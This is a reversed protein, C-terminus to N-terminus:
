TRALLFYSGIPKDLRTAEGIVVERSVRRLYDYMNNYIFRSLGAKNPKIPPWEAPATSPERTYDILLEGPRTTAAAVSFYGPGTLWSISQHNYGIITGNQKVFRKEFITFLPLSNKGAYIVTQGAPVSSPMLDELSLAPASQCLTWLRAQLRGPLARIERVRGDTDLSDLYGSVQAYSTGEAGLLSTLTVSTSAVAATTMPPSYVLPSTEPIPARM